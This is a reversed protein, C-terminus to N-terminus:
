RVIEMDKHPLAIESTSQSSISVNEDGCAADAKIVEIEFTLLSNPPLYGTTGYALEPHIYIIRKEGEKMGVLGKGFGAIAEELCVLEDEKSAGFISGDLYKGTYRILPSFHEEVVAGSGEQDIKYQLKGEELSIIGEVKANEELFTTAKILNDKAQNKFAHEQASAIAEVCEAESMPSEKGSTADQLGKILYAIDFHVGLSEINKGILHGFAESLKNVQPDQELPHQTPDEATLVSLTLLSFLVFLINM